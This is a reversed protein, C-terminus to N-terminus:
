FLHCRVFHEPEIEVPEPLSQKCEDRAQPCRSAYPCGTKEPSWMPTEMSRHTPLKEHISRSPDPVAALLLQTYPHKPNQTIGETSGWEVMHGCYLVVTDEAFYRATAIDHTIYMFAKGMERKMENMLNLVGIRISVDLMSTPEDALIVKAGIALTKALFVRQRQGGSLQHPFKDLVEKAPTLGVQELIEILRSEMEPGSKFGHHIKLPRSLHYRITHLPNLSAFPDQFVMQVDRRYAELEDKSTIDDINKGHFYIGGESAQHIKTAIKASTSKGCGSEGVVALCRGERLQFNLGNLARLYQKPGFLSGGKKRFDITLNKAELVVPNTEDLVSNETKIAHM